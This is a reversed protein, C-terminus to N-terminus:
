VASSTVKFMNSSVTNIVPLLLREVLVGGLSPLGLSYKVELGLSIGLIAVSIGAPVTCKLGVSLGLIAVCM